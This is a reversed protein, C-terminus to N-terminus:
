PRRSQSSQTCSPATLKTAPNLGRWTAVAKGLDKCVAVFQAQMAATPAIDATELGNIERRLTENVGMFTPPPPGGPRFGGGGRAPGAVAVLVSDRAKSASDTGLTARAAAVEQYGDWSTQMAAVVRM